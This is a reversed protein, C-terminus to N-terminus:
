RPGANPTEQPTLRAIACRTCLDDRRTPGATNHHHEVYPEGPGIIRVCGPEIGSCARPRRAHRVTVGPLNGLAQERCWRGYLVAGDRTLVPTLGQYGVLGEAVLQDILPPATTSINPACVAIARLLEFRARTFTESM